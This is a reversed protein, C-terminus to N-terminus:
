NKKVRKVRTASEMVYRRPSKEEEEAVVLAAGSSSFGQKITCGPIFFARRRFICVWAAFIAGLGCVEEADVRESEDFPSDPLVKGTKHTVVM